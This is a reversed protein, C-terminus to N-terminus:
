PVDLIPRPTGVSERVVSRRHAGQFAQGAPAERAAEAPWPGGLHVPLAEANRLHPGPLLQTQKGLRHPDDPCPRDPIEDAGVVGRGRAPPDHAVLGERAPAPIEAAVGSRLGLAVPWGSVVVASAHMTPAPAAPPIRASSSARRPTLTTTR